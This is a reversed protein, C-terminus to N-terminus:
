PPAMVNAPTQQEVLRSVEPQAMRQHNLTAAAAPLPLALMLPLPLPLPARATTGWAAAPTPPLMRRCQEASTPRPVAGDMRKQWWHRLKLTALSPQLLMLAPLRLLLLVASVQVVVVVVVGVMHRVVPTLAQSLGPSVCVALVGHATSMMM